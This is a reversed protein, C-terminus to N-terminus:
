KWNGGIFVEIEFSAQAQTITSPIQVALRYEGDTTLSPDNEAFQTIGQIRFRAKAASGKSTALTVTEGVSLTRTGNRLASTINAGTADYVRITECQGGSPPTTPTPTNEGGPPQTPTFGTGAGCTSSFIAFDGCLQGDKSGENCAVDAQGCGQSYNVAGDWSSFSQGNELCQGNTLNSCKHGRYRNCGLGPNNPDSTCFADGTGGPATQECQRSGSVGQCVLNQGSCCPTSECSQRPGSCGGSPTPSATPYPGVARGRLETLQQQQSIFYVALPLSFLLFLLTAVIIGTRSSRHKKPPLPENAPPPTGELVANMIDADKEPPAVSASDSPPPPPPPPPPLVAEEKLLPADQSKQTARAIDVM